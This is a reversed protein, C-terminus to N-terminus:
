SRCTPPTYQRRCHALLKKAYSRSLTIAAPTGEALERQLAESDSISHRLQIAEVRRSLHEWRPLSRGKLKGRRFARLQRLAYDFELNYRPAPASRLLEVATSHVKAPDVGPPAAEILRHYQRRLHENRLLTPTKM